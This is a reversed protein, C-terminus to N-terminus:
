SAGDTAPDEPPLPKALVHEWKNLVPWCGDVKCLVFIEDQWVVRMRLWTYGDANDCHPGSILCEQGTEPRYGDGRLGKPPISLMDLFTGM